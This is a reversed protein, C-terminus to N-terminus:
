EKEPENQEPKKAEAQKAEPKENEPKKSEPKKAEPAADNPKQDKSAPEKSESKKADVKQPEPETGEQQETGELQETGEQQEPKMGEFGVKAAAQQQEPTAMVPFDAESLGRDIVWINRYRVPDGGHDQLHIPLLTPEEEKGHGTKSKLEVDDQVKVGNIWSSIRANRIKKGWIM